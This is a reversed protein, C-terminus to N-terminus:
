YEGSLDKFSFTILALFGFVLIWVFLFLSNELINITRIKESDAILETALSVPLLRAIPFREALFKGINYVQPVLFLLPLNATKFFFGLVFSFLTLMVQALVAFGIFKWVTPTFLLPTLGEKGLALHTMSLSFIASFFSLIGSILSIVTCKSLFLLIRNNVSLLTTRMSHNKWEFAGYVAGLIIIFMIGFLLSDFGLFEVPPLKVLLAPNTEPSSSLGVSLLQKGAVFSLASQAFIMLLIVIKSTKLSFLKLFESNICRIFKLM